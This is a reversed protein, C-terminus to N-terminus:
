IIVNNINSEYGKLAGKQGVVGVKFFKPNMMVISNNTFYIPHFRLNFGLNFGQTQSLLCLIYGIKAM